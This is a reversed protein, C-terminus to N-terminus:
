SVKVDLHFSLYRKKGLETGYVRNSRWLSRFPYHPMHRLNFTEVQGLWTVKFHLMVHAAEGLSTALHLWLPDRGFSTPSCLGERAHRPLKQLSPYLGLM